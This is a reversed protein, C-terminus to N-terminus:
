YCRYTLSISDDSSGVKVVGNIMLYYDVTGDVTIKVSQGKKIDEISTNKETWDWGMTVGTLSTWTSTVDEIQRFSNKQFLKIKAYLNLRTEGGALSKTTKETVTYYSGDSARQLMPINENEESVYSEDEVLSVSEIDDAFNDFEKQTEIVIPTIHSPVDELSITKLELVSTDINATNEEAFVSIPVLTSFVFLASVFLSLIKKM